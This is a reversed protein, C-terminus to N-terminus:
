KFGFIHHLLMRWIPRPKVAHLKKVLPTRFRYFRAGCDCCRYRYIWLLKLLTERLANRGSRQILKSFCHPCYQLLVPM